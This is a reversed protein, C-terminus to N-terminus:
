SICSLLLLLDILHGGFREVQPFALSSTHTLVEASINLQGQMDLLYIFTNGQVTDSHGNELRIIGLNSSLVGFAVNDKDELLSSKSYARNKCHMVLITQKTSKILTDHM